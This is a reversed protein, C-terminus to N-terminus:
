SSTPPSSSNNTISKQYFDVDFLDQPESIAMEIIKRKVNMKLYLPSSPKGNKRCKIKFRKLIHDLDSKTKTKKYLEKLQSTRNLIFEELQEDTSTM